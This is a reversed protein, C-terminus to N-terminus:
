FNYNLILDIHFMDTKNLYFNPNNPFDGNAIKSTLLVEPKFNSWKKFNLFLDVNIHTYDPMAYKNQVPDLVSPKWHRGASLISTLNIDESLAVASKYNLVLAHNNATGESRERKQFSFLDERGWERPSLFKGQSFIRDYAISFESRNWGYTMKFGLIDSSNQNFYRLSDQKNGGEDIKNQHLWEGELTFNSNIKLRPKIYLSNSINDTYYNWLDIQLDKTVKIDSNFLIVFDSNTNGAYLNSEGSNNRGVPYTGISEGIKFFKGTSRPAIRNLVGLQFENTKSSKFKYWFGQVLTPIMRGDQPNILPTNIKIRGLKFQHKQLTYTAYLEGLLVLIPDELDLRNFLGEEYRSLKNTTADPITLDQLGLNNSNYIAAAVEFNKNFKYQYKLNGGTALAQFDKLKEKNVTAMYYTRWQGSLSGRKEFETTDQSYGLMSVLILFLLLQNRM